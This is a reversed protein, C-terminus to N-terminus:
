MLAKHALCFGGSQARAAMRAEGREPGERKGGAMGDPHGEKGAAYSLQYLLLIM